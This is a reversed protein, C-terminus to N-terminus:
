VKEVLTFTLQEAGSGRAWRGSYVYFWPGEDGDELDKVVMYSHYGYENKDQLTELAKLSSVKYHTLMEKATKFKVGGEGYKKEDGTFGLIQYLDAGQNTSSYSGMVLMGAELMNGQIKKVAKYSDGNKLDFTEEGARFKNVLIKADMSKMFGSSFKHSAAMENFVSNKKLKKLGENITLLEELLKM